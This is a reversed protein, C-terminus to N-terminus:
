RLVNFMNFHCEVCWENMAKYVPGGGMVWMKLHSGKKDADLLGHEPWGVRSSPYEDFRPHPYLPTCFSTSPMIGTSAPNFQFVFGGRCPINADQIIHDNTKKAAM